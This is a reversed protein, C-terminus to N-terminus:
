TEIPPVPPRLESSRSNMMDEIRSPLLLVISMVCTAFSSPWGSGPGHDENPWRLTPAEGTGNRPSAAHTRSPMRMPRTSDPLELSRVKPGYVLGAHPDRGAAPLRVPRNVITSCVVIHPMAMPKSRFTM